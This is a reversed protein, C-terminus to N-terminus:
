TDEIYDDLRARLEADDRRSSPQLLEQVVDTLEAIRRNLRRNEQVERELVAVRRRLRAIQQTLAQIAAQDQESSPATGRRARNRVAAVARPALRGMTRAGRGLITDSM